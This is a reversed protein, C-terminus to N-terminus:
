ENNIVKGEFPLYELINEESSKLTLCLEYKCKYHKIWKSLSIAGMFGSFKTDDKFEKSITKVTVDWSWSLERFVPECNNDFGKGKVTVTNDENYIIDSVYFGDNFNTSWEIDVGLPTVLYPNTKEVYDKMCYRLIPHMTLIEGPAVDIYAADHISAAMNSNLGKAKVVKDVGIVTQVMCDSAAGQIPSNGSQRLAAAYERQDSRDLGAPLWRIRGNPTRIYGHESVFKHQDDVYKKIGPFADFYKNFVEQAEQVTMNFNEAFSQVSSGYLISFSATKAMRRETPDVESEPKRFVLSATYTHLDHENRFADAMTPDGYKSDMVASLVRMECAAYDAACILGGRGAWHSSTMQKPDSNTPWTHMGSSIRGTAVSHLNYDYHLTLDDPLYCLKNGDFSVHTGKEESGKLYTSELKSLKKMTKFHYLFKYLESEKDEIKDALAQINDASISYKGTGTMPLTGGMDTIIKGIQDGSNYSITNNHGELFARVTPLEEMSDKHGQIEKAYRDRWYKLNHIAVGRLEMNAYANAADMLMNYINKFGEDKEIMPLFKKMLLIPAIADYGAYKEMVHTPIMWYFPDDPDECRIYFDETELISKYYQLKDVTLDLTNYEDVLEEYNPNKSRNLKSILNSFRHVDEEWPKMDLYRGALTKLSYNIFPYETLLTRVMLMSDQKINPQIGLIVKAMKYEFKAHHVVIEKKTLLECLDSKIQARDEDSILLDPHYLFINFGVLGDVSVSFSTIKAGKALPNLTNTETDYGVFKIDPSSLWNSVLLHFENKNLTKSVYKDNYVACRKGYILDNGIRSEVLPSMNRTFDFQSPHYTALTPIKVGNYDVLNRVERCDAFKYPKLIVKCLEQGLLQVVKPNISKVREYFGPLCKCQELLEAKIEKNLMYSDNDVYICGWNHGLENLLNVISRFGPSGFPYTSKYCSDIVYLVDVQKTEDKIYVSSQMCRVNSCDTCIM